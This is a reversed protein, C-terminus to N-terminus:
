RVDAVVQSPDFFFAPPYSDHVRTGFVHGPFHCAGLISRPLGAFEVLRERQQAALEPDEDRGFRVASDAEFPNHLADGVIVAQEDGSSVVYSTHGPTHGPTALVRVGEIPKDGDDVWTGHARLVEVKERSPAIFHGAMPGQTWFEFEPKSLYIRANPFTPVGDSDCLWGLHDMHLHTLLIADIDGESVGMSALSSPLSGGSMSGEHLGGSAEEMDLFVDGLGLDVLALHGASEVLFSGVSMVLTTDPTLGHKAWVHHPTGTYMEHVPTQHFGDPLYTIAADGITVRCRPAAARLLSM